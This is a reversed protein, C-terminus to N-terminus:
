SHVTTVDLHFFPGLVLQREGSALPQIYNFSQARNLKQRWDYPNMKKSYLSDHIQYFNLFWQNLPHYYPIQHKLRYKREFLITM